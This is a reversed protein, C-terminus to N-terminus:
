DGKRQQELYKAVAAATDYKTKGSLLVENPHGTTPGGIVILKQAGMADKPVSRDTPRIFMGCNRNKEAVDTGSWYDEKSFLLVAVALKMHAGGAVLKKLESIFRSWPFNKGPCATAYQDQHRSHDEIGLNFQTHVWVAAKLLGQFQVEPMFGEEFNGICVVAFSRQNMTYGSGDLAPGPNHAGSYYIDRGWELEGNPKVVLNYGIDGYKKPPSMHGRRIEDADKEHGATHHYNALTIKCPRIEMLEARRTGLILVNKKVLQEPENM